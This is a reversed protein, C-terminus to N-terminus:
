SFFNQVAFVVMPLTVFCLVSRSCINAVCVVSPQDGNYMFSGNCFQTGTGWGFIEPSFHYLSFQYFTLFYVRPTNYSISTDRGGLYFSAHNSQLLFINLQVNQFLLFFFHIKEFCSGTQSIQYNFSTHDDVTKQISSNIGFFSYDCTLFKNGSKQIRNPSKKLTILVM